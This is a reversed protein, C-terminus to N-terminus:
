CVEKRWPLVSSREGYDYRIETNKDIDKKAFLCLRPTENVLIKKMVSNLYMKGSDNINRGIRKSKTADLSFFVINNFLFFKSGQKM